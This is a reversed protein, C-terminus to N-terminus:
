MAYVVSFIINEHYILICAPLREIFLIFLVRVNLWIYSLRVHLTAELLTMVYKFSDVTKATELKENLMKKYQDDRDELNRM